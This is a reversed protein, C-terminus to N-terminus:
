QILVVGHELDRCLLFWSGKPQDELSPEGTRPQVLELLGPLADFIAPRNASDHVQGANGVDLFM